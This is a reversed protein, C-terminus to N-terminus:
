QKPHKKSREKELQDLLEKRRGACNLPNDKQALYHKADENGAKSLAEVKKDDTFQDGCTCDGPPFLKILLTEIVIVMIIMCLKFPSIKRLLPVRQYARHFRFLRSEKQAPNQEGDSDSDHAGDDPQQDTTKMNILQKYM